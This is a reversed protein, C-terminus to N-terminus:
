GTIRGGRPGALPIDQGALRKSRAPRHNDGIFHQRCAVWRLGVAADPRQEWGLYVDDEGHAVDGAQQRGFPLLSDLAAAGDGPFLPQSADDAGCRGSVPAAPRPKPRNM